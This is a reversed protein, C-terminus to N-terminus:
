DYYEVDPDIEIDDLSPEPTVRPTPTPTPVSAAPQDSSVCKGIVVCRYSEDSTCTSLVVSHDYENLPVTGNVESMSEMKQEWKLFESGNYDYLIYVDSEVSATTVCYIHYRYNGGPTLIWFYPNQEYVSQDQLKKLTNFMSGDKMNHGYIITNPDTFDAANQYDEFISGSFLYEQRFTRHLYYDNDTGRCIPYNITPCADVYIWGVIDPNIKELAEWDVTVPPEADEYPNGYPDLATGALEQFDSGSSISEETKGDGSYAKTYDDALAAYEDSSQKYESFIAYLQYGSYGFVAIAAVLIIARVVSFLSSKKKRRRKRRSM